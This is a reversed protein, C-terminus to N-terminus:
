QSQVHTTDAKLSEYPTRQSGVILIYKDAAVQGIRSKRTVDITLSRAQHIAEFRGQDSYTVRGDADVVRLTYSYTGPAIIQGKSDQWNWPVSEPPAGTGSLACVGTERADRIELSWSALSVPPFIPVIHFVARDPEVLRQIDESEAVAKAVSDPNLPARGAEYIPVESKVALHDGTLANVLANARRETGPYSIVEQKIPSKSGRLQQSISELSSLYGSSYFGHRRVLPDHVKLPTLERLDTRHQSDRLSGLDEPFLLTLNRLSIGPEVNRHVHLRMVTVSDVDAYVYYLASPPATLPLLDTHIPPLDPIYPMAPPPPVRDFDFLFGFRHSGDSALSLDTLPYSFRYNLYLSGYLPAEAEVQVQSADTAARVAARGVPVEAGVGTYKMM